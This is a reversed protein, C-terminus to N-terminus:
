VRSSAALPWSRAALVVSINDEGGNENAKAVLNQCAAGPTASADVITAMEEDSVMGWLGDCCLLLYQEPGLDRYLIDPEVQAGQGLAKYLINRQLAVQEPSVNGMELMRAAMSHDRTLQQLRGREGQYARSDGMHAVYVGDGLVLALTITTGAEPLRRTIAEHAIHVSTELAENIPPREAMGGGDLLPLFVQNLVHRAALHMALTSAQEGRIHGGMGDAVVFLGAPLPSQGQQALMFQLALIADENRERVRGPDSAIGITLDHPNAQRGGPRESSSM